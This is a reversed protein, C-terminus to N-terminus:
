VRERDGARWEGGGYENKLLFLRRVPVVEVMISRDSRNRRMRKASFSLAPWVRGKELERPRFRPESRSHRRGRDCCLGFLGWPIGFLLCVLPSNGGQTLDGGESVSEM